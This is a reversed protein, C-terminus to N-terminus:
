KKLLHSWNLVLRLTREVNRDEKFVLIRGDSRLGGTFTGSPLEFLPTPAGFSVPNGKTVGVSMIKGNSFFQIESGDKSWTPFIGGDTSVQWVEDSGSFPRVYVQNDGSADSIYAVLQGDPSFQALAEQFRTAVLPYPKRDGFMPLVWIDNDGRQNQPNFLIFRGDASWSTVNAYNPSEFLLKEDSAATLRKQYIRGMATYALHAQDPSWVGFSTVESDQTLRHSRNTGMEYVWLDTKGSRPDLRVFSFRDGNPSLQPLEYYGKEGAIELQKGSRDFWM